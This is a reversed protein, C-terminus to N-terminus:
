SKAKELDEKTNLNMFTREHIGADERKFEVIQHLQNEVFSMIKLEKKDIADKIEEKLFSRYVGILPHVRGEFSAITIASEQNENLLRLLVEKTIFPTDCSLIILRDSSAKELATYIGGLPGKNQIIDEFTPYGLKLYAGNNAIINVPIDLHELVDITSQIMPSGDLDLLGKDAGMRSSEGGALIFAEIKKM